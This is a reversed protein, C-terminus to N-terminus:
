TRPEQPTDDLLSLKDSSDAGTSERSEEAELAPEYAQSALPRPGHLLVQLTMLAFGIPMSLMPLMRSVGLGMTRFMSSSMAYHWTMWTAGVMLLLTLWWQYHILVRAMRPALRRELLAVRMHAGEVWVAGLALMVSAIILYRTLEDVWIPAGGLIYRMVVGYLMIIVTSALLIAAMGLTIRGSWYLARGRFTPAHSSSLSNMRLLWCPLHTM